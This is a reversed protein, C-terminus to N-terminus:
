YVAKVDTYLFTKLIASYVRKLIELDELKIYEDIIHAESLPAGIEVVNAIEKIFLADSNGGKTGIEPIRGIVKSVIKQLSQTIPMSCGIFPLGFREFEVQLGVTKSLIYQELTEFTWNDNFRINFLAEVFGPVINRTTNQMSDLSTIQLSSPEFNDSGNDLPQHCLDNLINVFNHIHNGVTLANAVHCQEGQSRIDANLSGRCGIKIYDGAGYPSCSECLVCLDIQENNEKLFRVVSKTGYEGMKEEDSTLLFSVSASATDSNARIYDSVASLCASLPGKMDNTGRGYAKGNRVSLKFPDSSWGDLPPVVDIHGAFCLNRGESGLRAYLSRVNNFTLIKSSFGLQSLFDACFRIAGDDYPTISKCQVLNALINLMKKDLRNGYKFDYLEATFDSLM